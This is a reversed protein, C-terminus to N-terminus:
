RRWYQNRTITQEGEVRNISQSAQGGDDVFQPEHATNYEPQDTPANTTTNCMLTRPWPEHSPVRNTWPAVDAQSLCAPNAITPLSPTYYADIPFPPLGTVVSQNVQITM